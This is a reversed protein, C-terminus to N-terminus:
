IKWNNIVYTIFGLLVTWSTGWVYYMVKIIFKQRETLMNVEWKTAYTEAQREIIGKIDSLWEKLDWTMWEKMEKLHVEISDIKQEMYDQSKKFLTLDSKNNNVKNHASEIKDDLKNIVLQHENVAKHRDKKDEETKIMARKSADVVHKLIENDVYSTTAQEM